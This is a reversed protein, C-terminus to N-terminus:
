FFTKLRVYLFDRSTLRGITDLSSGAFVGASGEVSVNDRLSVDLITRAFVTRDAPDYVGLVRLSRTERAFRRDVSGVISVDTRELEDDGAFLRAAPSSDDIGRRSWLLNGAIRYDGTRRDVGVGAEIAHGPVGAVARTSQLLDRPTVAVEGRVGWAGRVTEFDGGVTTFRPYTQVPLMSPTPVAILPFSRLGRYGSVGVDVRGITTTFRGGGQLNRWSVAPSRRELSTADGAINFPSTPEDLQDFESRRFVPVVLAELTSSGPLFVRGRVLAVPLRAESRGELLFRTLDIPNVVDTPQLEDLRGWVVRAMGARLDAHRSIVDVYLEGPRAIADGVRRGAPVAGPGTGVAEVRRALLGDVYGSAYIRFHTGLDQRREAFVRARLETVDQAGDAGSVDPLVDFMISVSGDVQAGASVPAACLCLVLLVRSV